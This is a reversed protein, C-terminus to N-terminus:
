QVALTLLTVSFAPLALSVSGDPQLAAPTATEVITAPAQETNLADPPAGVTRASTVGTVTAGSVRVTVTAAGGPQLNIVALKVAAGDRYAIQQIAPFSYSAQYSIRPATLQPVNSATTTLQDGSLRWLQRLDLGEAGIWATNDRAPACYNEVSDVRFTDWAGCDGQLSDLAWHDSGIVPYDSAPLATERLLELQAAADGLGGAQTQLLRVPKADCGGFTSYEGVIVAGRWATAHHANWTDLGPRFGGAAPLNLGAATAQAFAGSFALAFQGDDSRWPTGPHTGDGDWGQSQGAPVTTDVPSGGDPFFCNNGSDTQLSAATAAGAKWTIHRLDVLPHRNKFQCTGGNGYGGQSPSEGLASASACAVVGISHRGPTTYAQFTLVGPRLAGTPTNITNAPVDQGLGGATTAVPSGDFTVNVVPHTAGNNYPDDNGELWLAYTVLGASAIAPQVPYTAPQLDHTFTTTSSDFAPAYAHYDFDDVWYGGPAQPDATATLIGDVFASSGGLNVAGAVIRISPDVARMARAYVKVACGYLQGADTIGACAAPESWGAVGALNYEENGIEWYVVGYPRTDLQAPDNPNLGEAVTRNYARRNAWLAVNADPSSVSGNMYAVWDVAEVPNGSTDVQGKELNVNLLPLGGGATTALIRMLDDPGVDHSLTGGSPLTNARYNWWHYTCDGSGCYQLNVPQTFRMTGLNLSTLAQAASMGGGTPTYLAGSSRDWATGLGADAGSMYPSYPVGLDAADIQIAPAPPSPSPSPSPSPRASPSPSTLGPLSPTISPLGVAALGVAGSDFRWPAGLLAVAALVAFSIRLRRARARGAVGAARPTANGMALVESV